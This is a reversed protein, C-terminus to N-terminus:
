LRRNMEEFEDNDDCSFGDYVMNESSSIKYIFRIAKNVSEFTNSGNKWVGSKTRYVYDVTIM